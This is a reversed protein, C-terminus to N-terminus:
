KGKTLRGLASELGNGRQEGRRRQKQEKCILLSLPLLLLLLFSSSTSLLFLSLQWKISHQINLADNTVRLSDMSSKRAM